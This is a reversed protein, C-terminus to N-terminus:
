GGVTYFFGWAIGVTYDAGDMATVSWWFLRTGAFQLLSGSALAYETKNVLTVTFVTTGQFATTGTGVELVYVNANDARSWMWRAGAYGSSLILPRDPTPYYLRPSQLLVISFHGNGSWPGMTGGPSVAYVAWTYVRGAQLKGSPLEYSTGFATDRFVESSDTGTTGLGFWIVYHEAGSVTSWSFTATEGSQLILPWKEEPLFLLPATLVPIASQPLTKFRRTESWYSWGNKNHAGVRWCYSGDPVLLTAPVKYSRATTDQHLLESSDLPIDGMGIWVSYKDAGSSPKWTFTVEYPNVTAADAPLLLVPPQPPEPVPGHDKEYVQKLSYGTDTLAIRSLATVPIAVGLTGKAQAVTSMVGVVEGYMNFLAGGNSGLPAVISTHIAGPSTETVVGESVPDELLLPSNVAVVPEGVVLTSPDGLECIPFGTGSVKIVALDLSRDYGLVSVIDYQQGGGVTITGSIAYDLVSYSTVVRGDQQTFFGSGSTEFPSGSKSGQVAIKVFRDVVKSIEGVTLKARVRVVRVESWSSWGGVGHAAVQWSYANRRLVSEPVVHSTVELGEAEHVVEAGLLVRIRYTSADPVSTWTLVVASADVVANNDPAALVPAAPPDVSVIRFTRGGSWPGWGGENHVSVRWTYTGDALVGAPIAYDAGMLSSKLHVEVGSSLIQVRSADRGTPPLWSLKPLENVFEMGDAPSVLMPASLPPPTTDVTYTLTIMKSTGEYQVDIGLSEAVFRLPLMTRGNTIVPVVASNASNIALATGNLSAQSKGIWLGLSDEGLMVTVKRTSSEWVTSGGFAEIVARIPVLTRGAVIVPKTGQADIPQQVGDVSMSANGIWLKVTTSSSAITTLPVLLGVVLVIAMLVNLEHARRM